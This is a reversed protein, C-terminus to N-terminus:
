IGGGDKFTPNQHIGCEQRDTGNWRGSRYEGSEDVTTTCPMCGISLYGENVLPHKPLDREVVYAQLEPLSWNALPNVRVYLGGDLRLGQELVSMDSREDTQFRKRGTIIADFGQLARDLPLTKRFHCCADVDRSWLTGDPDREKEDDPHPYLTRIDTFGLKDQLRDRYRLTQGFLKGTNLFLVPITPDIQSIMHLLVASESGFSSIAAIRGPFHEKTIAALLDQGYLGALGAELAAFEINAQDPTPETRHPTKM